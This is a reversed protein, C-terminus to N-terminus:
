RHEEEEKRMHKLMTAVDPASHLAIWPFQIWVWRLYVYLNSTLQM